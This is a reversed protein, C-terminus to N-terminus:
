TLRLRFLLLKEEGLEVGDRCANERSGWGRGRGASEWSWQAWNSFVHIKGGEKQQGGGDGTQQHLDDKM